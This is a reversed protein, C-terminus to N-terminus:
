QRRPASAADKSRQRWAAQRAANTPFLRPRGMVPVRNRFDQEGTPSVSGVVPATNRFDPYPAAGEERPCPPTIVDPPVGGILQLQRYAERLRKVGVAFYRAEIEIGIYPRGLRLCALGTTFSGAYPDLVLGTTQQVCWTMLEIPKQAPHLKPGNRVNDEGARCVGRWLHHFIRTRGPLSTWALECSAYHDAARGDRKDWILWAASDPLRSAYHQAGWLIVQPYQLWPTPDFPQGDGVINTAWAPDHDQLGRWSALPTKRNRRRKTYDFDTGYPPDAILAHVDTLL